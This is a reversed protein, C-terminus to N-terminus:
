SAIGKRNLVSLRAKMQARRQIVEDTLKPVGGRSKHTTCFELILEAQEQKIVLYPLIATLVATIEAGGCLSWTWSDKYKGNNWERLRTGGGFRKQIWRILRANTNVVSINAAHSLRGRNTRHHICLCGEGDLIGALYALETETWHPNVPKRGTM